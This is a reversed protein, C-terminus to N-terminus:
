NDPDREYTTRRMPGVGPAQNKVLDLGRPSHPSDFELLSMIGSCEWHGGPKHKRHLPMPPTASSSGPTFDPVQASDM